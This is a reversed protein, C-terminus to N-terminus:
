WLALMINTPMIQLLFTQLSMASLTFIEKGHTSIKPCILGLYCYLPIYSSYLNLKVQSLLSASIKEIKKTQKQKKKDQICAPQLLMLSTVKFKLMSRMIIYSFHPYLYQRSLSDLNKNQKNRNCVTKYNLKVSAKNAINLLYEQKFKTKKNNTKKKLKIHSIKAARLVKLLM